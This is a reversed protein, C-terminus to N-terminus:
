YSKFCVSSIVEQLNKIQSIDNLIILPINHKQCYQQKLSDYEKQIDFRDKGGFFEVPEYHQIGNYEILAALNNNIDYIGFDFRLLGGKQGKLDPFTVQKKYLINNDKCFDLILKEGYSSLCGCSYQHNLNSRRVSIINGCHLCKCKWYVCKKELSMQADIELAELSNNFIKGKYDIANSPLKQYHSIGCGCDLDKVTQLQHSDKITIKGCDCLCEYTARRNKNTGIYKIITINGIKQNQEFNIKKTCGCNIQHKVHQNKFFIKGCDLCQCEWIPPLDGVDAQRNYGIVKIHNFTQGRLDERDRLLYQNMDVGLSLGLEHLEKNRESRYKYGIRKQLDKYNKCTKFIQLLEEKSMEEWKKM